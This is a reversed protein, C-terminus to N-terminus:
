RYLRHEAIYDAVADPVFGRITRGNAVRARLETSSIDVRRTRLLAVGAPPDGNPMAEEGRAMVAISALRRIRGPERWQDFLAWADLGLLLTLAADPLEARFSALTDVTYSLGAREIEAGSVEFGPIGAVLRATMALRHEATAGARGVKFPQTAAPVLRVRDLGLREAADILPLLHGLHPPDFSGGFIGLRV